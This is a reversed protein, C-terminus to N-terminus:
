PTRPEPVFEHEAKFSGAEVYLRYKVGPSLPEPQAGKFAPHLGRIAMGYMFDRTPVSNSETVLHWLAHPFQNTEADGVAVVKLSTLRLRRNFEFIIPNVAATDGRARRFLIRAPRSRHYLHISDGRFWDTNLYLSFGGLVVAVALLIWYKRTM